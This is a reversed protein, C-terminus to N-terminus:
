PMRHEPVPHAYFPMAKFSKKFATVRQVTRRTSSATPTTNKRLRKVTAQMKAATQANRASHALSVPCGTVGHTMGMRPAALQALMACRAPPNPPMRPAAASLLSSALSAAGKVGCCAALATADQGLHGVIDAIYLWAFNALGQTGSCARHRSKKDSHAGSCSTHSCM